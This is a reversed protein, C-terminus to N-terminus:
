GPTTPQAAVPRQCVDVVDAVFVIAVAARNALLTTATGTRALDHVSGLADGTVRHTRGLGDWAPL